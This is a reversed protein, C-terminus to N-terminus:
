CSAGNTAIIPVFPSRDIPCLVLKAPRQTTQKCWRPFGAATLSRFMSPDSRSEANVAVTHCMETWWGAPLGHSRKGRLRGQVWRVLPWQGSTVVYGHWGSTAAISTAWSEALPHRSNFARVPHNERTKNEQKGRRAAILLNSEYESLAIAIQDNRCVYRGVPRASKTSGLGRPTLHM